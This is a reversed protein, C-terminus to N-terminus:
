PGPVRLLSTREGGAAAVAVAGAGMLRTPPKGGRLLRDSLSNAAAAGGNWVARASAVMLKSAAAEPYSTAFLVALALALSVGGFLGAVVNDVPRGADTVGNAPAPASSPSAPAPPAPAAPPANFGGVVALVYASPRAGGMHAVALLTGAPSLALYSGAFTAPAGNQPLFPRLAYRVQTPALARWDLVSVIGNAQMMAVAHFDRGWANLLAVPAANCLVNGMRRGEGSSPVVGTPGVLVSFIVCQAPRVLNITYFLRYADGVPVVAPASAWTANATFANTLLYTGAYEGDNTGWTDLVGDGCPAGTTDLVGSIRLGSQLGKAASFDQMRSAVACSWTRDGRTFQLSVPHQMDNTIGEYPVAAQWQEYSTAFPNTSQLGFIGGKGAPQAGLDAFVASEHGLLQPGFAGCSGQLRHAPQAFGTAIAREGYLADVVLASHQDPDPLWVRDQHLLLAFEGKYKKFGFPPGAATLNLPSWAAEVVDGGSAVGSVDAAYLANHHRNVWFALGNEDVAASSSPAPPSGFVFAGSKAFTKATPWSFVPDPAGQTVDPAPVGEPPPLVLMFNDVDAVVVHGSPAFVPLTPWVGAVSVSHEGLDKVLVFGAGAAPAGGMYAIANSRRANAAEQGWHEFAVQGRAARPLLLAALLLPAAAAAFGARAM